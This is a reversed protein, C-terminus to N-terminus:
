LNLIEAKVVSVSAKEATGHKVASEVTKLREEMIRKRAELVELQKKAILVTFFAQAVQENLKYIEVELENLQNQLLADEVTASAATVGGDWIQQRIEAYAKYQDKPARPITVNPLAIDIGTVDSQYTAQGNLVVNPLYNLRINEKQLATIEKYMGSQKLNPYNERALLYCSDLHIIEQGYLMRLPFLFLMLVFLRKM